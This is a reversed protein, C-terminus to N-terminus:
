WSSKQVNKVKGFSALKKLEWRSIKFFRLISRSDWSNVLASYNNVKTLFFFSKSLKQLLFLAFQKEIKTSKCSYLVRKLLYYNIELKLFHLRIFYDTKKKKKM